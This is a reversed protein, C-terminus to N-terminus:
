FQGKNESAIHLQSSFILPPGSPLSLPLLLLFSERDVAIKQGIESQRFIQIERLVFRHEQAKQVM